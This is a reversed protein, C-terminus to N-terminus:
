PLINVGVSYTMSNANNHVIRVRWQRTLHIGTRSNAVDTIGPYLVYLNTVATVIAGGALLVVWKSSAVDFGELFMTISGTGATTVDVVVAAGAGPESSTFSAPTLTPDATRPASPALTLEVARGSAPM